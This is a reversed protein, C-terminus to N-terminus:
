EYIFDDENVSESNLVIFDYQKLGYQQGKEVIAYEENQYLITVKRFDAYGMNINYVGILEGKKAVAYESQGSDMLLYDGISLAEDNVYYYGDIEDYVHLSVTESSLTGDEKFTKRIFYYSDEGSEFLAYEKPVLYFEKRVLSTLPIKLGVEEQTILEIEIFRETAYAPVSNNFSIVGFFETGNQVIEIPATIERQDELFRVTVFGDQELEKAREETLEIAIQWDDSTILKYTQSDKDVLSTSILQNKEYQTKDFLESTLGNVSVSEYGDTNYVVYGTQDAYILKIADSTSNIKSIEELMNKNALKLVMGDISYLFDYTRTFNNDDYSACFSVIEKKLESLDDNTLSNDGGGNKTILDNIVGSQDITYVLDGIGIHETERAFYDIYGSEPSTKVVEQRIAIAEYVNTKALSGTTVEYRYIKEKGMYSFINWLVYALFLLAVFVAINFKSLVPRENM